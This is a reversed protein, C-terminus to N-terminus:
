VIGFPSRLKLADEVLFVYIDDLNSINFYQEDYGLKRLLNRFVSGWAFYPGIWWNEPQKEFTIRIDAEAPQLIEALVALVPSKIETPIADYADREIM